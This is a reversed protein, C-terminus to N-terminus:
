IERNLLFQKWQDLQLLINQSLLSGLSINELALVSDSMGFNRLSFIPSALHMSVVLLPLM